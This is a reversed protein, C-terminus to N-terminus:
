THVLIMPLSLLFNNIEKTILIKLYRKMIKLLEEDDCRFNM